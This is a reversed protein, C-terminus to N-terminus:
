FFFFFFGWNLIQSSAGLFNPIARYVNVMLELGGISARRFSSTFRLFGLNARGLIQAISRWIVQFRLSLLGLSSSWPSRPSPVSFSFYSIHTLPSFAPPPARHSAMHPGAMAEESLLVSPLFTM